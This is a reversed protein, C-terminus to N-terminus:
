PLYGLIGTEPSAIWDQPKALAAVSRYATWWYSEDVKSVRYLFVSFVVTSFVCVLLVSGGCHKQLARHVLLGWFVVVLPLMVVFYREFFYSARWFLSYFSILLLAGVLCPMLGASKDVLAKRLDTRDRALLLVYILFFAVAVQARTWAHATWWPSWFTNDPYTHPLGVIMLSAVTVARGLVAPRNIVFDELNAGAGSPVFFGVQWYSVLSWGIVATAAPGALAAFRFVNLDWRRWQALMTASWGLIFVAMDIRSLCTLLAITGVVTFHCFRKEGNDFLWLTSNVLAWLFFLQLGTQMLNMDNRFAVSNVAYLGIGVLSAENALAEHALRRFVRFVVFLTAVFVIVNLLVVLRIALVRDSGAAVHLPACLLVYLPHYANGRDRGNLTFFSGTPIQRAYSQEYYSDDQFPVVSLREISRFALQLRGGVGLLVMLIAFTRILMPLRKGPTMLGTNVWLPKPGDRPIILLIV